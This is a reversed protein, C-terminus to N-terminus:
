MGLEGPFGNEVVDIALGKKLYSLIENKCSTNVM